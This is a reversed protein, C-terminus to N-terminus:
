RGIVHGVFCSLLPNEFCGSLPSFTSIKVEMHKEILNTITKSPVNGPAYFEVPENSACRPKGAL